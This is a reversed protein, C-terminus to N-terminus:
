PQSWPDDYGAALHRDAVIACIELVKDADDIDAALDEAFQLADAATTPLAPRQNRWCWDTWTGWHKGGPGRRDALAQGGLDAFVQTMSTLAGPSANQQSAAALHSLVEQYTPTTM